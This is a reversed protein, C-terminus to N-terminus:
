HRAGAAQVLWRYSAPLVKGHSLPGPGLLWTVRGPPLPASGLAILGGLSVRTM